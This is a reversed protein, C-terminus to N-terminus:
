YAKSVQLAETESQAAALRERLSDTEHAALTGQTAGAALSAREAETAELRRRLEAAEVEAAATAAGAERAAAAAAEQSEFLRERVSRLEEGHKVSAGEAAEVAATLRQITTDKQTLKVQLAETAALLEARQADSMGAARETVTTSAAAAAVAAQLQAVQAAAAQAAAQAAEEAAQAAKREMALEEQVM